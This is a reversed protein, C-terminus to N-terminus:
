KDYDNLRYINFYRPITTLAIKFASFFCNICGDMWGDMWGDM